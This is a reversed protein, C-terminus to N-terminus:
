SAPVSASSKAVAAGGPVKPNAAEVGGAPAASGISVIRRTSRDPAFGKSANALAGASTDASSKRPWVTAVTVRVTTGSGPENTPNNAMPPKPM